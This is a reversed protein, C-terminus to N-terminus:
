VGVKAKEEKLCKSWNELFGEVKERRFEKPLEIGETVENFKEHEYTVGLEDLQGSITSLQEMVKEYEPKVKEKAKDSVGPNGFWIDAAIIRALLRNYEKAINIIDIVRM